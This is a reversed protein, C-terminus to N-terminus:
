RPDKRPPRATRNTNYRPNGEELLRFEVKKRDKSAKLSEGRRSRTFSRRGRGRSRWTQKRSFRRNQRSQPDKTWGLGKTPPSPGNDIGSPAPFNTEVMADMEEKVSFEISEQAMSEQTMSEQALCPQCTLAWGGVTASALRWFASCVLDSIIKM